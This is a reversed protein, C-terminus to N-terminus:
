AALQEQPKHSKRSMRGRQTGPNNRSPGRRPMRARKDARAKRRKHLKIVPDHLSARKARRAEAREAKSRQSSRELQEARITDRSAERESRTRGQQNETHIRVVDQVTVPVFEGSKQTSDCSGIEIPLSSWKTIASYYVRRSIIALMFSFRGPAVFSPLTTRPGPRRPYAVCDLPAPPDRLQM